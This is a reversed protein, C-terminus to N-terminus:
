LLKEKIAIRLKGLFGAHWDVNREGFSCGAFVFRARLRRVPEADREAKM